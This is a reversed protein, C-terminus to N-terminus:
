VNNIEGEVKCKMIPIFEDSNVGINEKDILIDKELIIMLVSPDYEKRKILDFDVNLLRDGEEVIDGEKVLCHFGEGDLEVTDIGVHIMMPIGSDTVMTIAHKSKIISKIEAKCPAVIMSDTPCIMIGDGMLKEAFISDSCKSIDEIKGKVVNKIISIM